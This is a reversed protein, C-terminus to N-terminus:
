YQVIIQQGPMAGAPVTVSMPGNPTQVPMMQGPMVGQPIVVAIQQPQQIPIGTAIAMGMGPQPALQTMGVGGAGAQQVQM